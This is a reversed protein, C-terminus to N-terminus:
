AAPMSIERVVPEPAAPRRLVPRLVLIVLAAFAITGTAWIVLPSPGSSWWWERDRNLNFGYFDQGTVYRRINAHLAASQAVILIGAILTRRFGDIRVPTGFRDNMLALGIILPFLPLFYRPQVNEGILSHERQLIYLALLGIVGLVLALAVIKGAFRTRLGITVVAIAAAFAGYAAVAPMATDLWGLGWGIGFWGALLSPLQMLNSFLVPLAQRGADQSAESTLAGSQGAGLFGIIAIVVTIAPAILRKRFAFVRRGFVIALALMAVVLYAAADSRAVAAVTASVVMLISAAIARQRSPSTWLTYCAMWAAGVGAIAWASPNVSATLFLGLPVSAVLLATGLFRRRAPEAIALAAGFLVITLIVNLIRVAVTTSDVDDTAFRHTVAYYPGMYGGNDVNQVVPTPEIANKCAASANANFAYCPAGAFTAPVYAGVVEGAKDRKVECGSDVAPPPCKIASLHYGDDPSSGAPSSLTWALGVLFAALVAVIPILFRRATVPANQCAPAPSAPHLPDRPEGADEHTVPAVAMAPAPSPSAAASPAEPSSSAADVTATDGGSGVSATIRWLQLVAVLFVVVSGVALAVVGRVDVGGPIVALLIGTTVAGCAWSIALASFRSLALLAAAVLQGAGLIATAALLTAVAWRTAVYDSGFLISIAWPGIAAGIAAVVAAVAGTILVTTTLLRRLAPRGGESVIRTTTPITLAQIPALLVLPIRSAAIIAFLTAADESDAGTIATVVAPYGTLLCATFGAAACLLAMRHLIPRLPAHADSVRTVGRVHRAVALWAFSGLAVAAVMPVFRDTAIALGIAAVAVVRVAAEIIIVTAYPSSQERGILVGRVFLQIAFGATAALVLLLTLGHGTLLADRVPTLLLALVGAVALILGLGTVQLAPRDLATGAIAAHASQRAVEQEVVSLASGIGFIVGWITLFQGYDGPSLWRAAALILLYGLGSAIITAAGILGISRRTQPKPATSM